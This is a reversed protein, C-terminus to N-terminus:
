LPCTSNKDGTLVNTLCSTLDPKFTEAQIKGLRASSMNKYNDLFQKFYNDKVVATKTGGQTTLFEGEIDIKRLCQKM